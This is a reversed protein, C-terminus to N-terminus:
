AIDELILTTVGTGDQKAEVVNYSKNGIILAGGRANDLGTSATMFMPQTSEIGVEGDGEVALYEDDFIGTVNIPNNSSRPTFQASVAFDGTNFYVSFNETFAM